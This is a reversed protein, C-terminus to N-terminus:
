EVNQAIKVLEDKEINGSIIYIYNGDNFIIGKKMIIQGIIYLM